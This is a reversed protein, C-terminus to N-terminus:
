KPLRPHKRAAFVDVMPQIVVRLDANERAVQKAVRYLSLISRYAESLCLARSDGALQVIASAQNAIPAIIEASELSSIILGADFSTAAAAVTPFDEAAQVCARGAENLRLPASLLDARQEPTLMAMYPLLEARAARIHGLASAAAISFGPLDILRTNLREM